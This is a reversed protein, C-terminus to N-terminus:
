IRWLSSSNFLSRPDYPPKKPPLADPDFPTFQEGMRDFRPESRLKRQQFVLIEEGDITLLDVPDFNGRKLMYGKGRKTRFEAYMHVMRGIYGHTQTIYRRGDKMILVYYRYPQLKTYADEWAKAVIQGVSAAM